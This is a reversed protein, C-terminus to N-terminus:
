VHGDQQASLALLHEVLATDVMQVNRNPCGSFIEALLYCIDHHSSQM